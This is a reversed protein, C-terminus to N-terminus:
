FLKGFLNLIIRRNLKDKMLEVKIGLVKLPQYVYNMKLISSWKIFKRLEIGLPKVGTTAM